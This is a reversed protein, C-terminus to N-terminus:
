AARRHSTATMLAHEERRLCVAIHGALQITSVPSIHEDGARCQANHDERALRLEALLDMAEDLRDAALHGEITAIIGHYRDSLAQLQARHVLNAESDILWIQSFRRAVADFLARM